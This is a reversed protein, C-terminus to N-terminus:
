LLESHIDYNEGSSFNGRSAAKTRKPGVVPQPGLVVELAVCRRFAKGSVRIQDVLEIAGQPDVAAAVLRM